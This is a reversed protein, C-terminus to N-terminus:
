RPSTGVSDEEPAEVFWPEIVSVLLLCARRSSISVAQCWRGGFRIPPSKCRRWYAASGAARWRAWCALRRRCWRPDAEVGAALAGHDGVDGDGTLQGAPTDVCRKVEKTAQTITKGAEAVVLRAFADRDCHVM